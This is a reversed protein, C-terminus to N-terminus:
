VKSAPADLRALVGTLVSERQKLSNKYDTLESKYIEERLEGLASKLIDTVVATEDATLDIQM